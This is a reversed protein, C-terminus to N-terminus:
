PLNLAAKKKKFSRSAISVADTAYHVTLYLRKKVSDVAIGLGIQRYAPNMISDYHPRYKKGKESMYFNYTYRIASILEKTCDAKTCAYPSWGISETFYTRHKGTDGQFKVGLEQFWTKMRTYDYYSKQGHRKHDIYGRKQAIESWIFATRHLVNNYTFPSLSGSSRASNYWDLWTNRVVNMDVNEPFAAAQVTLTGLFFVAVLFLTVMGLFYLRFFRLPSKFFYMM